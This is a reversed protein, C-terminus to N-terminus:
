FEIFTLQTFLPLQKKPGSELLLYAVDNHIDIVCFTYHNAKVDTILREGVAISMESSLKMKYTYNPAEVSLYPIRYIEMPKAKEYNLQEEQAQEIATKIKVPPQYQIQTAAFTPAQICVISFLVLITTVIKKM